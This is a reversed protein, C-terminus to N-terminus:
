SWDVYKQEGAPLKGTALRQELAARCRQFPGDPRSWRRSMDTPDADRYSKLWAGARNQWSGNLPEALLDVLRDYLPIWQTLTANQQLINTSPRLAELAKRLNGVTGVHVGEGRPKAAPRPFFRFRDFYPTIQDLIQECAVPDSELLLAVALLATEEPTEAEFCGSSAMERLQALGEESLYWANLTGRFRGADAVTLSLKRALKNEHPQTPGGAAYGGTAFGSRVVEPTAWAPM